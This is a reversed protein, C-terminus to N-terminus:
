RMVVKGHYGEFCDMAAVPDPWSPSKPGGSWGFAAAALWDGAPSFYSELDQSYIEVGGGRAKRLVAVFRGDANFIHFQEPVCASQTLKMM